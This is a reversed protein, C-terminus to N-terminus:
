SVLGEWGVGCCGHQNASVPDNFCESSHHQSVVIITGIWDEFFCRGQRQLLPLLIEEPAYLSIGGPTEGLGFGLM